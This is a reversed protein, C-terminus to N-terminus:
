PRRRGPRHGLWLRLPQRLGLAQFGIYAVLNVDPYFQAKAVGIRKAAAEARWRAAAVDPRRGILDAALTPPLGFAKLAPASPPKMALGRDPGDGILAAIEDRTQVIEEDIFAVDARAAPPGAEAQKAEAQTDIGDAVRRAVLELTEQRSQVSRLTVEREAYLRVLDSYAGALATSLTLRAEAADAQAARQDSVAAAVAARNKGWFDFEYSFNLEAQGYDNYGQPM